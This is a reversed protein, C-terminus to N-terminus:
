LQKLYKLLMYYLIINVQCYVIVLQILPKCTWNELKDKQCIGLITRLSINVKKNKGYEAFSKVAM